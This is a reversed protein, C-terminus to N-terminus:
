SENIMYTELLDEENMKAENPKFNQVINEALSYKVISYAPVIQENNLETLINVHGGTTNNLFMSFKLQGNGSKHVAIEGTHFDKGGNQKINSIEDAKLFTGIRNNMFRSMYKQIYWSINKEKTISERMKSVTKSFEDPANKFIDFRLARELMDSMDDEFKANNLFSGNIKYESESSPLVTTRTFDLDRYNSDVLVVFGDNPIYYDIGNIKYKWYTTFNGEKSIDKVFVNHELSFNNFKIGYIQM